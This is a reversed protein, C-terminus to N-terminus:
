VHRWLLWVWNLSLGIWAAIRWRQGTAKSFEPRWRPRRGILVFAAYLNFALLAFLGAFALPNFALADIWQGKAAARLCRTVGCAPCAWGTLKHFLCAPLPLGLRLWTWIGTLAALSVALWIAEHNTERPRLPQWPM